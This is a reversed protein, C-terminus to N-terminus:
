PHHVTRPGAQQPARESAMGVVVVVALVGAGIEAITIAGKQRRWM